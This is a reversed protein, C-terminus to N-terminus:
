CGGAALCVQVWVGQHLDFFFLGLVVLVFYFKKSLQHHVQQVFEYLTDEADNMTVIITCVVMICSLKKILSFKTHCIM